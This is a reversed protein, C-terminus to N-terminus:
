SREIESARMETKFLIEIQKKQQEQPIKKPIEALVIFHKTRRKDRGSTPSGMEDEDAEQSSILNQAQLTKDEDEDDTEVEEQEMIKDSDRIMDSEIRRENNKEGSVEPAVESVEANKM